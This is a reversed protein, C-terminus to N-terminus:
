WLCGPNKLLLLGLWYVIVSVGGLKGFAQRDEDSYTYGKVYSRTALHANLDAASNFSM